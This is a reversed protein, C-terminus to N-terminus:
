VPVIRVGRFKSKSEDTELIPFAFMYVVGDKTFRDDYPAYGEVSQAYGNEALVDNAVRLRARQDATLHVTVVRREKYARGKALGAMQSRARRAEADLRSIGSKGAPPITVDYGSERCLKEIAARLIAVQTTNQTKAMAALATIATEPIKTITISSM